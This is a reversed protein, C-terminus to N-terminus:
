TGLLQVIYDGDLQLIDGDIILSRPARSFGFPIRLITYGPSGRIPHGQPVVGIVQLIQWSSPHRNLRRDLKYM